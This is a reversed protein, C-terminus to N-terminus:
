KSIICLAIYPVVSFFFILCKYFMIGGYNLCNFHEETMNFFKSHLRYIAKNAIALTLFWFSVVFFNLIISWLLISKLTELYSM